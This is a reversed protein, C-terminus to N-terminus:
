WQIGALSTLKLENSTNEGFPAPGQRWKIHHDSVKKRIEPKEIDPQETATAKKYVKDLDEALSGFLEAELEPPLDEDGNNRDTFLTPSCCM